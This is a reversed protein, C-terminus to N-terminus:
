RCHRRYFVTISTWKWNSRFIIRVPVLKAAM